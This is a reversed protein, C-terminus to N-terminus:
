LDQTLKERRARAKKFFRELAKGDKRRIASELVSLNKKFAAISKLIEGSNSIAIDKWIDADSSAIRTADSFGSSAFRLSRDDVSALMTFAVMHPLHSIFSVIRDHAPPSLAVVSAGLAKWLRGVTDFSGTDTAATRTVICVSNEFLDKRAQEVGRKESGAMPHGGVFHIGKPLIGEMEKVLQSKTSGVDTVICGNKLRPIARKVLGAMSLIPTALVVIDAGAVGESPDLTGRDIAGLWLARDISHKHHGIGVVERALGKAKVALGLSGGILGVGIIAIKNFQKVM